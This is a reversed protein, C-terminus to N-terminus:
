SVTQVVNRVVTSCVCVSEQVHQLSRLDGSLSCKLDWKVYEDKHSNRNHSLPNHIQRTDM